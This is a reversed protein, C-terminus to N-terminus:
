RIALDQRHLYTTVQPRGERGVRAAVRESWTTATNSRAAYYAQVHQDYEPPAGGPTYRDTMMIADLPLRPKPPPAEDPWGLCLGFLPFALPPLGLLEGIPEIGNRIAGLFVGGLGLSEAALLVNQALMGTDVSSLIVQELYGSMFATGEAACVADTRSWDGVFVLFEPAEVIWPQRAAHDHIAERLARDQVRIISYPQLHSSTSAWRAADLVALLTEEPIPEDTFKRISRHRAILDIVPTM